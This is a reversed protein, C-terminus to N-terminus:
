ESTQAAQQQRRMKEAELNEYLLFLATENAKASGMITFMREGTEDHPAQREKDPVLFEHPVVAM